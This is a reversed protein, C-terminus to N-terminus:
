LERAEHHENWTLVVDDGDETCSCCDGQHDGEHGPQGWCHTTGHAHRLTADCLLSDTISM